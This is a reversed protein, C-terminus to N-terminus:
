KARKWVTHGTFGPGSSATPNIWNMEDDKLSLFRKQDSEKWNPFSSSQIHINLSHDTDSVSYTGFYCLIRQVVAKDEEPTGDLRDNSAYKPLDSGIFQVSIHGNGDMTLVGTPNPRFPDFRSGDPGEIYISVLMWTGVLQDRASQALTQFAVGLFLLVVVATCPLASRRNMLNMVQDNM